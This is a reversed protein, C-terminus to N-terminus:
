CFTKMFDSVCSMGESALLVPYGDAFGTEAGRKDAYDVDGETLWEEGRMGSTVPPAVLPRVDEAFPSKMIFQVPRSLYTSLQASPSLDPESSTLPIHPPIYASPLPKKHMITAGVRHNILKTEPLARHSSQSKGHLSKQM